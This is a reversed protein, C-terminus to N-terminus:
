FLIPMFGKNHQPLLACTTTQLNDSYNHLHHCCAPFMGLVSVLSEVKSRGLQGPQQQLTSYHRVPLATPALLASLSACVAAATEGSRSCSLTPSSIMETKDTDSWSWSESLQVTVPFIAAAHALSCPVHYFICQAATLFLWLLFPALFVTLELFLLM